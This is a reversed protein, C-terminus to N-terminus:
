GPVRGPPRAKRADGEHPKAARPAKKKTAVAKKRTAAEVDTPTVGAGVIAAALLMLLAKKMLVSGQLSSM